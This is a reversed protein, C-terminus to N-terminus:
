PLLAIGQEAVERKSEKWPTRWHTDNFKSILRGM